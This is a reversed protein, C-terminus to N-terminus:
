VPAGDHDWTGADNGNGDCVLLSFTQDKYQVEPRTPPGAEEGCGFFFAACVVAASGFALAVVLEQNFRM